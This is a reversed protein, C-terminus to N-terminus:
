QTLKRRGKINSFFSSKSLITCHWVFYCIEGSRTDAIIFYEPVHQGVVILRKKVRFFRLDGELSDLIVDFVTQEALKVEHADLAGEDDVAVATHVIIEVAVPRARRDIEVNLVIIFLVRDVGLDHLGNSFPFPERKLLVSELDALTKEGVHTGNALVVEEIMVMRSVDILPVPLLDDGGLIAVEIVHDVRDFFDPFDKDSGAFFCGLHEWLEITFIGVDRLFKDKEMGLFNEVHEGVHRALLAFGRDKLLIRGDINDTDAPRKLVPIRVLHAGGVVIVPYGRCDDLVALLHMAQVAVDQHPVLDCLAAVLKSRHADADGLVREPLLELNGILKIEEFQWIM